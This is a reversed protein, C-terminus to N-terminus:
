QCIGCHLKRMKDAVVGPQGSQQEGGFEGRPLRGGSSKRSDPQGGPQASDEPKPHM